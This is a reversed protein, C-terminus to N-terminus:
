EWGLLLGGLGLLVSARAKANGGKVTSGGVRHFVVRRRRACSIRRTAAGALADAPTSPLIGPIRQRPPPSVQGNACSCRAFLSCLQVVASACRKSSRNRDPATKWGREPACSGM